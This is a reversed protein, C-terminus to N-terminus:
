VSRCCPASSTSSIFWADSLASQLSLRWIPDVFMLRQVLAQALDSINRWENDSFYYTGGRVQVSMNMMDDFPPCGSLMIYLVVGLSWIDAM